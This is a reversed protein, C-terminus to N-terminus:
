MIEGHKKKPNPSTTTKRINPPKNKLNLCQINLLIMPYVFVFNNKGIAWWGSGLSQLDASAKASCCSIEWCNALSASVMLYWSIDNTKTPCFLVVCIHGHKDTYTILLSVLLNENKNLLFENKKPHRLVHVAIIDHIHKHISALSLGLLHYWCLACLKWAFTSVFVQFTATSNTITCLQAKNGWHWNQVKGEKPKQKIFWGNFSMSLIYWIHCILHWMFVSLLTTDAFAAWCVPRSLVM